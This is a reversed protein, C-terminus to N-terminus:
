THPIAHALVNRGRTRLPQRTSTPPAISCPAQRPSNRRAIWVERMAVGLSLVSFLGALGTLVDAVHIGPLDASLELSGAPVCALALSQLVVANCLFLWALEPVCRWPKRRRDEARALVRVARANYTAMM